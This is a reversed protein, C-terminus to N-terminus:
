HLCGQVEQFIGLAWGVFKKSCREWVGLRKKGLNRYKKGNVKRVEIKQEWPRETANNEQFKCENWGHRQKM